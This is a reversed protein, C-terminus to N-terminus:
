NCGLETRSLEDNNPFCNGSLVAEPVHRHYEHDYLSHELFLVVKDIEEETLGLPRFQPAIQSQPVLANEKQAVNFYKVVEKLSRKSSGHFYFGGGKMNYLGPVKFKYMDEERKTFGGRGKNRKDDIGTNIAEDGTEYLDKVGIAYFQTPNNLPTGNHCKYCGAKGFFLLAGEKEEDSMAQEDGKLWHQFPADSTIMSRLYASLAFSATLKGYRESEPFNGFVANFYPKYGLTDIITENINMRHLAFGEIIQSEMGSLGLRNIETDGEWVDETGINNDGGGFKGSWTTNPVYATNMVNLARAGQVDPEDNDYFFLKTRGEGNVGFGAGGDAIGQARGPMFGAEPIHCTACSWTGKSEEFLPDLALGTEFFLMRGLEVKLETLPNNPDAPISAYDGYDPLIFHDANGTPSAKALAARLDVDLPNKLEDSSCGYLVLVFVFVGLAYKKM